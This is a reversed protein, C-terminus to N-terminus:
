LCLRMKERKPAMFWHGNKEADEGTEMMQGITEEPIGELSFVIVSKEKRAMKELDGTTSKDQVSGM